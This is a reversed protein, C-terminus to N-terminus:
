DRVVQSYLIGRSTQSLLYQAKRLKDVWKELTLIEDKQSYKRDTEVHEIVEEREYRAIFNSTLM